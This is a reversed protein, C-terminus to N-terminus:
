RTEKDDGNLFALTDLTAVFEALEKMEDQCIAAVMNTRFSAIVDENPDGYQTQGANLWFEVAGSSGMDTNPNIDWNYGDAVVHIPEDYGIFYVYFDKRKKATM